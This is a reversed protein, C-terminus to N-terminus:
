FFILFKIIIIYLLLLYFPPRVSYKAPFQMIARIHACGVYDSQTLLSLAQAQKAVPVSYLNPNAGLIPTLALLTANVPGQLPINTLPVGVTGTDVNTGTTSMYNWVNPGILMVAGREGTEFVGCDIEFSLSQIQYSAPVALQIDESHNAAAPYNITRSADVTQDAPPLPLAVQYMAELSARTAASPCAIAGASASISCSM